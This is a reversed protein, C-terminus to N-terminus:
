KGREEEGNEVEQVRALLSGDKVYVRIQEGVDVQNVSSLTRGSADAAYAYGQSLKDLPSLGKMHEAYLALRHRTEQLRREMAAQLREELSLATTKKMRLVNLPSLYKLRVGYQGLRGRCNQITRRCLHQM